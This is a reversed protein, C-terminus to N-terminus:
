SDTSQGVLLRGYPLSSDPTTTSVMGASAEAGVRGKSVLVSDPHAARAVNRAMRRWAWWSYGATLAYTLIISNWYFYYGAPQAINSYFIVLVPVGLLNGSAVTRFGWGAAMGCALWWFLSGLFGFDNVPARFITFVNTPVDGDVWIPQNLTRGWREEFGFFILPGSFMHAGWFPEPPDAWADEFWISFAHVHSFAGHRMYEWRAPSAAVLEIPDLVREYAGLRTSLGAGMLDESGWAERFGRLVPATALVFVTIGVMTIMMGPTLLPVRGRLQLIRGCFYGAFWFAAVGVLGSSSTGLITEASKPLVCALALSRTSIRGDQSTAFLLGGLIPAFYTFPLLPQMWLPNHVTARGFLEQIVVFTTAFVVSMTAVPRIFPLESPQVEAVAAGDRPARRWIALASGVTFVVLSLLIWWMGGSLPYFQPLLYSSFTQIAWYLSFLSAPAIWSGFGVRGVFALIAILFGPVAADNMLETM